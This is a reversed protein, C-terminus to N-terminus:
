TVGENGKNNVKSHLLKETQGWMDSKAKTTQEKTGYGLYWQWVQHWSTKGM